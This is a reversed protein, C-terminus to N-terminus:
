NCILKYTTIYLEEKTVYEIVYRGSKKVILIGETKNNSKEKIYKDIYNTYFKIQGIDEPHFERTKIEVVIYCNLKVNFFLLDIKYTKNDIKVYECGKGVEFYLEAEQAMVDIEIPSSLLSSLISEIEEKKENITLINFKMPTTIIVKNDNISALTAGRFYTDFAVKEKVIGNEEMINLCKIWIDNINEM